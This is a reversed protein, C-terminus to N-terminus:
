IGAYNDGKKIVVDFIGSHDTRGRYRLRIRNNSANHSVIFENPNEPDVTITQVRFNRRQIKEYISDDGYRNEPNTLWPMFETDLKKIQKKNLMGRYNDQYYLYMTITYELDYMSIYLM